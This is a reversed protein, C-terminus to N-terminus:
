AGASTALDYQRNWWRVFQDHERHTVWTLNPGLEPSGGFVIPTVYWKVMGAHEDPELDRPVSGAFAQVYKSVLPVTPVTFLQGNTERIIFDDWGRLGVIQFGPLREEIGYRQTAEETELEDFVVFHDNGHWGEIM